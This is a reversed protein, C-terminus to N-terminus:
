RTSQTIKSWDLHRSFIMIFSFLIFLVTAGIVLAYDQSQILFYLFAYVMLTWFGVAMGKRHSSLIGSGYWGVVTVVAATAIAYAQSFGVHESFAMLLLYFLSLAVGVMGYQIPHFYIRLYIELLFFLLFSLVIVLISYKISRMNQQYIDVPQYLQFGFESQKSVLKPEVGTWWAPLNLNLNMVSWQASFGQTSITRKSPLFAGSFSPSAWDSQVQVQSVGATPSFSLGQSGALSVQLTVALDEKAAMDLPIKASLGSFQQSNFKRDLSWEQQNMGLASISRLSRPQSVPLVLEASDWELDAIDEALKQLTKNAFFGSLEVDILYVPLEYIGYQRLETTMNVKVDVAEMPVYVRHTERNIKQAMQQGEKFVFGSAVERTYPVVLVPTHVTNKGGWNTAINVQADYQLHQRESILHEVRALPLLLVLTIVGMILLKMVPGKYFLQKSM